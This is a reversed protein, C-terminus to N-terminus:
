SRPHALYLARRWRRNLITARHDLRARHDDEALAPSGVGRLGTLGVGALAVGDVIAVHLPRRGVELGHQNVRFALSAHGHDDLVTLDRDAVAAGSPHLVTGPSPCRRRGFRGDWPANGRGSAPM